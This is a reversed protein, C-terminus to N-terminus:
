ISQGELPMLVCGNIRWEGDSQKEMMYYASVLNGDSGMLIVQQALNGEINNIGEFMVSRPRYVPLYSSKVMDMFHDPSGFQSQINPSAFSFAKNANDAQFAELQQEIVARIAARDTDTLKMTWHEREGDELSNM